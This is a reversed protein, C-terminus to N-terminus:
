KPVVLTAKGAGAEMLITHVYQVKVPHKSRERKAQAKSHWGLGIIVASFIVVGWLLAQETAVPYHQRLDYAGYQMNRNMFVIDTLTTPEPELDLLECYEEQLRSFTELSAEKVVQQLAEDFSHGAWMAEEVDCALHDTLEPLLEASIGSRRLHLRLTDIQEPTLLYM